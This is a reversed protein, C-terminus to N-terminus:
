PRILGELDRATANPVLVAEGDQQGGQIPSHAGAAAARAQELPLCPQNAANRVVADAPAQARDPQTVDVLRALCGAGVAAGQMLYTRGAQPTFSWRTCLGPKGGRILVFDVTALQGAALLAPEAAQQPSGGVLLRPNKCALADALQFLAFKDDAPVAARLLLRASPGTVVPASAPRAPAAPAPSTPAQVCAALGWAVLALVVAPLPRLRTTPPLAQPKM